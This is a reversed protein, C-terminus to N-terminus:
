QFERLAAMLADVDEPEARFSTVCARLSPKRRSLRVESIWVGKAQVGAVVAAASLRGAELAPGTFCVVPLPTDNVIRWRASLLRERIMDGIYAQHEIAARYGKEGLEALAMFLKLGIFRRSWLIGSVYLEKVGSTSPPMYSPDVAFAAAVADRHRCFFMGAGMPVSLWKHADWTISDAREIGAIATKLRPSLCAAGGWAADVHLWLSQERSLDAISSLPDVVGAGTTGATAVVMLPRRGAARDAAIAEALADVDMRLTEDVPIVRLADRGIGAGHAIKEFSHHSEASLYITPRSLGATLGSRAFDPLDRTMAVIVASQNAESGGSTFSAFWADPDGGLKRTLFRLTHREIENAGPAHSYVCIQPNTVAVLADAVVAGPQVSPNFLGFYRPHTPQVQWESLMRMVDDQLAEASMPVAFEGYREALHARIEPTSVSPSVPREGVSQYFDAVAAAMHNWRDIM